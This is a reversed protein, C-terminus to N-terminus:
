QQSSLWALAEAYLNDLMAKQRFAGISATVLLPWLVVLSVAAAGIKDLWKGAMVEIELDGGRPILKLTACSTLGTVNRFFRGSGTTANRIQVLLGEAGGDEIRAMQVDHGTTRYKGEIFQACASMRSAAGPVVTKRSNEGGKKALFDRVGQAASGALRSGESWARGAMVKAKEGAVQANPVITDRWAAAAADAAKEVTPAAKGYLASARNKAEDLWSSIGDPKGLDSIRQRLSSFGCREMLAAPSPDELGLEDVAYNKIKREAREANHRVTEEPSQLDRSSQGTAYWAWLANVPHVLREGIRLFFDSVGMSTLEAEIAACIEANHPDDPSWCEPNTCNLLFLCRKGPVCAERVIARCLDDMTKAAQVIVVVSSAAIAASASKDDADQANYGPTDVIDVNQLVPKWASIRFWDDPAVERSPDFVDQRRALREGQPNDGHFLWAEEAEGYRFLTSAATTRLGKGTPAYRDDLLCNVLTSKGIQFGGVIAVVPKNSHFNM